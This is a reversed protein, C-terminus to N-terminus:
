ELYGKLKMAPYMVELLGAWEDAGAYDGVKYNKSSVRSVDFSFLAPSVGLYDALGSLTGTPDECLAEYSFEFFANDEALALAQRAREIELICDKWYRACYFRYDEESPAFDSYSGFNKKVYSEVVAPGNRYMHVFRADPFILLIRPMMFSIMASKVYFVKSTGRLVHLGTFVRKITEEHAHPWNELSIETFRKPDVEIPATDVSAKEPPYLQPHWLENAEGPFGVLDRHSKLIMHLLTTGCRGTGVIVVPRKVEVGRNRAIRGVIALPVFMRTALVSKLM